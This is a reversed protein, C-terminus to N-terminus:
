LDTIVGETKFICHRCFFLHKYMKLNPKHENNKCSHFATISRTKEKSVDRITHAISISHNATTMIKLSFM